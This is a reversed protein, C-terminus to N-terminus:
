TGRRQGPTSGGDKTTPTRSPRRTRGAGARPEGERSSPTRSLRRPRSRLRRPQAPRNPGCGHIGHQQKAPAAPRRSRRTAEPPRSAALNATDGLQQGAELRIEPHLPQRQRPQPGALHGEHGTLRLAQRLMRPHSGREHPRSPESSRSRNEKSSKRRCHLPNSAKIETQLDEQHHPHLAAPSRAEATRRM